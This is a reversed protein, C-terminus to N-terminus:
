GTWRTPSAPASRLRQSCSSSMTAPVAHPGLKLARSQSACTVTTTTFLRDPVRVRKVQAHRAQIQAVMAVVLIDGDVTGAATGHVRRNNPAQRARRGHILGDDGRIRKDAIIHYAGLPIMNTHSHKV